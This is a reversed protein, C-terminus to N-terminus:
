SDRKLMLMNQSECTRKLIKHFKYLKEGLFPLYIYVTLIECAIYFLKSKEARTPMTPDTTQTYPVTKTDQYIKISNILQGTQGSWPFYIPFCHFCHWVKNKQAGFDSCITVAAM